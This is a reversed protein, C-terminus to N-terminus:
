FFIGGFHEVANASEVSHVYWRQSRDDFWCEFKYPAIVGCEFHLVVGITAWEVRGATIIRHQPWGAPAQWYRPITVEQGGYWGVEGLTGALSTSRDTTLTYQGVAAEVGDDDVSVQSLYRASKFGSLNPQADWLRRLAERPTMEENFPEGVWDTYLVRMSVSRGDKIEAYTAPLVYGRSTLFRDYEEFSPRIWRYYIMGIVDDKVQQLREMHYAPHNTRSLSQLDATILTGVAEDLQEISRLEAVPHMQLQAYLKSAVAEDQEIRRIEQAVRPDQPEGPVRIVQSRWGIWYLLVPVALGFAVMIMRHRTM